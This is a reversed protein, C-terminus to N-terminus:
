RVIKLRFFSRIEANIPTEFSAQGGIITIQAAPVDTWNALDRSRQLVANPDDKWRVIRSGNREEWVLGNDEVAVDTIQIQYVQLDRYDPNQSDAVQVIVSYDNDLDVSAPQEFDPVTAPVFQLLGNQNISFHDADASASSISYSLPNTGTYAVKITTLSVPGSTNEPIRRFPAPLVTVGGANTIDPCDPSPEIVGDNIDCSDVTGDGDADFSSFGDNIIQVCAGPEGVITNNAIVSESLLYRGWDDQVETVRIRATANGPTLTNNIIQVGSIGRSAYNDTITGAYSGRHGYAPMSPDTGRLTSDWGTEVGFYSRDAPGSFTNNEFVNHDSHIANYIMWKPVDGGPSAVVTVTNARFRNHSAAIYAQLLGEGSSGNTRITNQEVLNHSSGQALHISASLSTGLQNHRVVSRNSDIQLSINRVNNTILNNEIFAGEAKTMGIGYYGGHIQNGAVVTNYVKFNSPPIEKNAVWYSNPGSPEFGVELTRSHLAITEGEDGPGYFRNGLIVNDRMDEAGENYALFLISYTKGIRNTFICNEVRVRSVNMGFVPRNTISNHDFTIDEITLDKVNERDVREGLLNFGPTHGPEEIFRVTGGRLYKLGNYVRVRQVAFIHGAPFTVGGKAAVADDVAAQVAATDNTIGDGVAGYDMPNFDAGLACSAALVLFCVLTNLTKNM